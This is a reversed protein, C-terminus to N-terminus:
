NRWPFITKFFGSFERLFDKRFKEFYKQYNQLHSLNGESLDTTLWFASLLLIAGGYIMNKSPMESLIIAAFIAAAMPSVIIDVLSYINANIKKLALGMLIYVIGTSFIGLGIAWIIPPAQFSWGLLNQEMIKFSDGIGFIFIMPTLFLTAFFFFWFSGGSSETSEEKRIYTVLSAFVFGGSLSIVNGLMSGQSGKLPEAIIIGIIGLIFIFIHTRRVKEDLFLASLIFVFFPYTSWFIVVNAVSTLSMAINFLSIQSAILFGIIISPIIDVKKLILGKRNLILFVLFISSLAFLARYFNLTFIPISKGALKVWIGILAELITIYILPTYRKM